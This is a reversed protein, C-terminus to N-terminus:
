MSLLFISWLCAGISVVVGGWQTIAGFESYVVTSSLGFLIACAAYHVPVWFIQDFKAIGEQEIFGGAGLATVVVVVAQTWFLWSQTICGCTGCSFVIVLAGRVAIVTWSSVLAASLAIRALHFLSRDTLIHRSALLGLVTSASAVFYAISHPAAYFARLDAEDYVRHTDPSVVALLVSAEVLIALGMSKYATLKEGGVTLAISTSFFVTTAGLASVVSAPAFGYAVSSMMESALIFVFGAWWTRSTLYTLTLLDQDRHGQKQLSLGAANVCGACIALLVGVSSTVSRELADGDAITQNRTVQTFFATDICTAM